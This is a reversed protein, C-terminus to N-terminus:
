SRGRAPLAAGALGGVCLTVVTEILGPIETGRFTLTAAILMGLAVLAGLVIMELNSKM